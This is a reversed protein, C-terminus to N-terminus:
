REGDCWARRVGREDTEITCEDVGIPLPRSLTITTQRYSCTFWVTETGGFRFTNRRPTSEFPAVVLRREPTGLTFGSVQGRHVSVRPDGVDRARPRARAVHWDGAPTVLEQRTEIPDPCVLDIRGGAQLPSSAFLLAAVAAIM